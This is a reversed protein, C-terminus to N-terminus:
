RGSPMMMQVYPQTQSINYGIFLYQEILIQWFSLFHVAGHDFALGEIHLGVSGIHCAKFVLRQLYLLFCQGLKLSLEGKNILTIGVQEIHIIAVQTM